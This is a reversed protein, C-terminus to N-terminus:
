IFSGEKVMPQLNNITLDDRSRPLVQYLTQGSYDSIYRILIGRIHIRDGAELADFNFNDYHINARSVFIHLSDAGGNTPSIRLMKINKSPNSDKVIAEGSVLLGRHGEPDTFAQSLPKPKPSRTESHLIEIDDVVIEPKSAHLKLTGSVQLSDGKSVSVDLTDSFVMIGATSDQLYFLLYQENLVNTAVTARGRVTVKEGLRDLRGDGDRDVLLDAIISIKNNQSAVAESKALPMLALLLM